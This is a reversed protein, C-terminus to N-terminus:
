SYAQLSNKSPTEKIYGKIVSPGAQEVQPEECKGCLHHAQAASFLTILISFKM